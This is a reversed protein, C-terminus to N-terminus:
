HLNESIVMYTELAELLWICVRFVYPLTIICLIIFVYLMFSPYGSNSLM